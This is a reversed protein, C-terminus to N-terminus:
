SWDFQSYSAGWNNVVEENAWKVSLGNKYSLPSNRLLNIQRFLELGMWGM